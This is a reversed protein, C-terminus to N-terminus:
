EILPNLNLNKPHPEAVTPVYSQLNYFETSVPLLLRHYGSAEFYAVFWIMNNDSVENGKKKRKEGKQLILTRITDMTHGQQIWGMDPFWLYYRLFLDLAVMMQLQPIKWWLSILILQHM